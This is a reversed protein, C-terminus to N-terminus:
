LDTLNQFHTCVNDEEGCKSSGLRQNLDTIMMEMCGEYLQKLKKWVEKLSSGLKVQNFASDPILAAILQKVGAEHWNWRTDSTLSGMTGETVYATMVSTTTLHKSWGHDEIAWLMCDQYTIWNSGNNALKNISIKQEEGM